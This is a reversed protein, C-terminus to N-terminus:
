PRVFTLEWRSHGRVFLRAKEGALKDTERQRSNLGVVQPYWGDKALNGLIKVPASWCGPDALDRGFSVYIGEQRWDKDVARNLLM